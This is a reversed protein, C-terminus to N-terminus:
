LIELILICSDIFAEVLNPVRFSPIPAIAGFITSGCSSPSLSAYGTNMVKHALVLAQNLKKRRSRRRGKERLKRREL